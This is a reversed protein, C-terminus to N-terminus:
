LRLLSINEFSLFIIFQFRFLLCCDWEIKTHTSRDVPFFLTVNATRILIGMSILCFLYIISLKYSLHCLKTCIIRMHTRMSSIADLWRVVALPLLLWLTFIDLATILKIFMNANIPWINIQFSTTSFCASRHRRSMANINDCFNLM